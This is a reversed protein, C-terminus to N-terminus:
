RFWDDLTTREGADLAQALTIEAAILRGGPRLVRWAEAVAREKEPSLNFVGNAQVVDVSEAVCPLEEISAHEVRLNAVGAARANDRALAVMPASYDVGLVRGAPGVERAAILADLGAGCGLDLVTEGPQLAARDHAYTVGAFADVAAAPLTALLEAPYGIAEAFARGVPFNFSGGPQAAVQGYRDAVASRIDSATLAHIPTSLHM